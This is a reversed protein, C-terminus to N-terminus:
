QSGQGSLFRINRKLGDFKARKVPSKSFLKRFRGENIKEWDKNKMSLLDDSLRFEPEDHVISYRNWPCVQQCIDCGFIWQRYKGKMEQPIEGKNEITLYSICKGSDLVYPEEIAQTPCADMCRTCDGCYNGGFPPDYELELSTILESIFFYSGHRRTIMMSNKGIWGLGARCALARELVPASDVFGRVIAGRVMGKLEDIFIDLKRRIVDHYDAGYAYRSIQYESDESITQSPFYNYLLVVASKAGEVLKSPDLRKQLHNNMYTMGASRGKSLWDMLHPAEKELYGAPAIGCAFFGLEEAKQKVFRTLAKSDM